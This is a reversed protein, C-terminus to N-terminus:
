RVQRSRSCSSYGPRLWASESKWTARPPPQQDLRAMHGPMNNIAAAVGDAATELEGAAASDSNQVIHQVDELMATWVKEASSAMAPASSVQPIASSNLPSHQQACTSQLLAGAQLCLLWKTM